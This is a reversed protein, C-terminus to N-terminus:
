FLELQQLPGGTMPAFTKYLPIILGPTHSRSTSNRKDVRKRERYYWRKLNDFTLDDESFGYLDIFWRINYDVEKYPANIHNCIRFMDQKIMLDISENFSDLAENSLHAGIKRMMNDSMLVDFFDGLSEKTQNKILFPDVKDFPKFLSILLTSILNKDSLSMQSGYHYRLYIAVHSEVTVRILNSM